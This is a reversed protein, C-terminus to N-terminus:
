WQIKVPYSRWARDNTVAVAGMEITQAILLRDFPDRHHDPLTELRVLHPVELALLSIELEEQMTRSFEDLSGEFELRGISRKIVMEWFSVISVVIEHDPSCLIPEWKARNLRRDDQRLWLLTHTDLLYRM